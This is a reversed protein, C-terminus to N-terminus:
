GPRYTSSSTATESVKVWALRPVNPRMSEFIWQSMIESTPNELGAVDNLLRHDLLTRIPEFVSGIEAFDMVWGYEDLEGAVSVEVVYSHGHMNACPHQDPVLPLFHAAEITFRKTIEFM